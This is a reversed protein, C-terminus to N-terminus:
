KHTKIRNELPGKGGFGKVQDILKGSKFFLVLPISSAGYKRALKNNVRKDVDVKVFSVEDGYIAALEVLVPALLRCPGCWDAYMDVITLGPNSVYSYFEKEGNVKTVTTGSTKFTEETLTTKAESTIPKTTTAKTETSESKTSTSKTPEPKESKETCSVLLLATAACTLFQKLM